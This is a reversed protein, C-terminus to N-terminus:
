RSAEVYSKHYQKAWTVHQPLLAAIIKLANAWAEGAPNKHMHADTWKMPDFPGDWRHPVSRCLRDLPPHGPRPIFLVEGHAHAQGDDPPRGLPFWEQRCLHETMIDQDSMWVNFDNKPYHFFWNDLTRKVAVAIDEGLTLGYVARWDKARMAVHCTPITQTRKGSAINSLFSSKGLFHDGQWYYSVM